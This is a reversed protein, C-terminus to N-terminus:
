GQIGLVAGMPSQPTGAADTIGNTLVAMYSTLQKLPKTPVLALTAGAVAIGTALWLRRASPPAAEYPSIPQNM